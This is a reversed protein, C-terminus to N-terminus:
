DHSIKNIKLFFIKRFSNSVINVINLALKLINWPEATLPTHLM